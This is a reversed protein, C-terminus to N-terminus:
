ANEIEHSQYFTLADAYDRVNLVRTAEEMMETPSPVRLPDAKEAKSGKTDDKSDDKAPPKAKPPGDTATGEFGPAPPPEPPEQEAGTLDVRDKKLAEITFVLPRATAWEADIPPLETKFGLSARERQENPTMYGAANTVQQLLDAPDTFDPGNSQFKWFRIGLDTLVKRNIVFDFDTRQPAFVQQEAFELATQATARNFDRVDGRLLRPMRFVSGLADTNAERYKMFLGDDQQVDRLKIVDIKATGNNLGGMSSTQAELIGVNHQNRKGRMQNKFFQEFRTQSDGEIRGGSVVLLMPPIARDEFYALNIEDAHRNGLVSLMESIWRPMGYPTRSNHIKFHILETAKVADKGEARVMDAEDKYHEGTRASMTRPDGFEKFYVLTRQKGDIIQVYSRFRKRVLESTETIITARVPMEVEIPTADVPMLRVTFSPVYTFQVIDGNANRLPEWYGNGLLEIDQRTKMRLATFSEDMTCFEFFRELRMRERLVEREIIKLRQHVEDDTPEEIDPLDDDEAGTPRGDAGINPAELDGADDAKLLAKAQEEPSAEQYEGLLREEIMAQKVREFTEDDELDISPVFTHGFGDVNTAYADINSRLAGSMEFLHALTVPDVPPEVAGEKSFLQRTNADTELVNSLESGDRGVFHAKVIPQTDDTTSETSM